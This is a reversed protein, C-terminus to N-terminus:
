KLLEKLQALAEPSMQTVLGLVTQDATNDGEKSFGARIDGTYYEELDLFGGIFYQIKKKTLKGLEPHDVTYDIIRYTKM